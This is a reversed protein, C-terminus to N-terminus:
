LYYIIDTSEYQVPIHLTPDEKEIIISAEEDVFVISSYIGTSKFQEPDYIDIIGEAEERPSAPVVMQYYEITCNNSPNKFWREYISPLISVEKPSGDVGYDYSEQYYFDPEVPIHRGCVEYEIVRGIEVAGLTTEVLCFKTDGLPSTTDLLIDTGNWQVLAAVTANMPSICDPDRLSYDFSRCTIDSLGPPVTFEFWASDVGAYEANTIVM